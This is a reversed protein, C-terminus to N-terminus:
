NCRIDDVSLLGISRVACRKFCLIGNYKVIKFRLSQSKISFIGYGQQLYLRLLYKCRNFNIAFIVVILYEGGLYLCTQSHVVTKRLSKFRKVGQVGM